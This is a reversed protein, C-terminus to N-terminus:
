KEDAWSILRGALYEVDRSLRAVAEKDTESYAIEKQLEKCLKKLIVLDSAPDYM